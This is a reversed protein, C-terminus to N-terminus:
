KMRERFDRAAAMNAERFAQRERAREEANRPNTDDSRKDSM